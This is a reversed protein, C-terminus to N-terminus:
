GLTDMDIGEGIAWDGELMDLLIDDSGAPWMEEPVVNLHDPLFSSRREHLSPMSKATTTPATYLSAAAAAAKPTPLLDRLFGLHQEILAAAAVQAEVPTIGNGNPKTLTEDISMESASRKLSGSSSSHPIMKEDCAGLSEFRPRISLKKIVAKPLLPQAKSLRQNIKRLREDIMYLNASVHHTKKLERPQQTIPGSHSLLPVDKTAGKVREKNKNVWQM